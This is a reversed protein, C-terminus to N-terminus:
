NAEGLANLRAVVTDLVEYLDDSDLATSHSVPTEDGFHL